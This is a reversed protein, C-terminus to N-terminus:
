RMLFSIIGYTVLLNLTVESSLPLEQSNVCSVQIVPRYIPKKLLLSGSSQNAILSVNSSKKRNATPMSFHAVHFLIFVM